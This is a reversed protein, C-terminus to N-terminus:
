SILLDRSKLVSRHFKLAFTQLFEVRLNASIWRLVRLFEICLLWYFERRGEKLGTRWYGDRWREMGGIECDWLIQCGTDGKRFLCKRKEFAHRTCAIAKAGWHCETLSIYIRYAEHKAHSHRCICLPAQIRRDLEQPSIHIRFPKMSHM